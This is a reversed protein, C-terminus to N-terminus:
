KELISYYYASYIMNDLENLLSVTMSYLHRDACELKGVPDSPGEVDLASIFETDWDYVINFATKINSLVQHVSNWCLFICSQSPFRVRIGILSLKLCCIITRM